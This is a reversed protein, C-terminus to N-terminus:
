GNPDESEDPCDEELRTLKGTSELYEINEMTTYSHLGGNDDPIGVIWVDYENYVSFQIPKLFELRDNGVFILRKFDNQVEEIKYEYSDMHSYYYIPFIEEDIDLYTSGTLIMRRDFDLCKDYTFKGDESHGIFLLKKDDDDESKAALGLETLIRSMMKRSTIIDPYDELVEPSVPPTAVVKEKLLEETYAKSLASDIIFHEDRFDIVEGRYEEFPMMGDGGEAAKMGSVLVKVIVETDGDNDLDKYFAEKFTKYSNGGEYMVSHAPFNLYTLKYKNGEGYNALLAM